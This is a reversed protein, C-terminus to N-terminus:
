AGANGYRRNGIWKFFRRGWSGQGSMKPGCGPAFKHRLMAAQFAGAGDCGLTIDQFTELSDFQELFAALPFFRAFDDAQRLGLRILLALRQFTLRPLM